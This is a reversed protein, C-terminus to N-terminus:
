IKERNKQFGSWSCAHQLESSVFQPKIRYNALHYYVVPQSEPHYSFKISNLLMM